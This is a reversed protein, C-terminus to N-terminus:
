SLIAKTFTSRAFTENLLNANALAQLVDLNFTASLIGGGSFALGILDDTLKTQNNHNPRIFATLEQLFVANFSLALKQNNQNINTTDAQM